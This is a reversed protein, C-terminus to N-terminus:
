RHSTEPQQLVTIAKDYEFASIFRHLDKRTSESLCLQEILKALMPAAILDNKQLHQLLKTKAEAPNQAKEDTVQQGNSIEDKLTDITQQLVLFFDDAAKGSAQEGRLFLEYERCSNMLASLGLNGSVGKLTHIYDKQQQHQEAKIFDDIISEAFQYEQVFRTFLKVLVARNGNLQRLGFELDVILNNEITM